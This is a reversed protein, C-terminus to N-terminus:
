YAKRRFMWLAALLPLVAAILCVLFHTPVLAKGQYLNESSWYFTLAAGRALGAHSAPEPDAEALFRNTREDPAGFALDLPLVFVLLTLALAVSTSRIVDDFVVSILLTLGLISLSGLWLLLTSLTMGIVSMHSLPYGKYSAILILGVSGLAAIALLALAGVAYKVFFMRVRGLPKSLLLFITGRSVEGSFFGIGLVVALLALVSKGTAYSFWLNTVAWELPDSVQEGFPTSSAGGMIPPPPIEIDMRIFRYPSLNVAVIVLFLLTGVVFKWRAEQWEKSIV